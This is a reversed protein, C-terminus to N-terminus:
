FAGFGFLIYVGAPPRGRAAAAFQLGPKTGPRREPRNIPWDRWARRLLTTLPRRDSKRGSLYEFWKEYIGVACSRWPCELGAQLREMPFDDILEPGREAYARERFGRAVAAAADDFYNQPLAPYHEREGRLYRGVDRRYERLLTTPM